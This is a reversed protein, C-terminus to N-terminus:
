RLRRAQTRCMALDASNGGPRTVAFPEFLRPLLEEPVSPGEDEVRLLVHDQVFETRITVTGREETARIAGQVLCHLLRGLMAVDGQIKPLKAALELRLASVAEGRTDTFNSVTRRVVDN